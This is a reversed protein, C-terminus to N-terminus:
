PLIMSNPAISARTLLKPCHFRSFNFGLLSSIIRKVPRGQPELHRTQCTPRASTSPTRIQISKLKQKIFDVKKLIIEGQIQEQGLRQFVLHLIARIWISFEVEM